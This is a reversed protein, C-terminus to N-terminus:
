PNSRMRAPAAFVRGDIQGTAVVLVSVVQVARM